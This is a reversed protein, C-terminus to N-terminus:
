GTAAYPRACILRSTRRMPDLRYAKGSMWARWRGRMPLGSRKPKSFLEDLRFVGVFLLGDNSDSGPDCRYDVALLCVRSMGLGTFYTDM